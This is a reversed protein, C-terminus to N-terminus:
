GKRKKIVIAGVAGGVVAVAAVAVIVWVTGNPEQEQSGAPETPAPTPKTPTETAPPEKLIAGCTCIGLDSWQHATPEGQNEGCGCTKWHRTDDYGYKTMSHTVNGVYGCDKCGSGCSDIFTHNTGSMRRKCVGCLVYHMNNNYEYERVEGPACTHDKYGCVACVEGAMTHPAKEVEDSCDTCKHWHHTTDSYWRTGLTHVHTDPPNTPEVPPDTPEPNTTKKAGCVTCTDNSWTHGSIDTKHGCSCQHWHSDANSHWTTGYSHVHEEPKKAGCVTCTNNSWTHSEPNGVQVSCDACYQWHYDKNNSQWKLNHKAERYAGCVNCATDCNNDYSHVHEEPKKAGCVTCTNNNWTHTGWNGNDVGCDCAQWHQNENYYKWQFNHTVERWQGCVNCFADCNNDYTHSGGSAKSVGCISCYTVCTGTNWIHNEREGSIKGCNACGMWHSTDNTQYKWTHLGEQSYNCISCTLICTGEFTHGEVNEKYSCGKCQQWHHQWDTRMEMVHPVSSDHYGVWTPDDSHEAAIDEWTPNFGPYYIARVGNFVCMESGSSTNMQPADGEFIVKLANVFWFAGGGIKKVSAPIKIETLASCREFASVGIETVKNPIVINSLSFCRLFMIDSINTLTDPLTISELAACDLFTWKGVSILGSPLTIYKLSNCEQFVDEGFTKISDSLNVTELYYNLYFMWTELKETKANWTVSKLNSWAFCTEGVETVSEPIVISVGAEPDFASNFAGNEIKTVTNPITISTLSYCTGFALEGISKVGRPINVSKLSICNNFLRGSIETINSSLTVKELSWDHEFAEAGISTVSNPITIEKLAGCYGFAGIGITKVSNPISVSTLQPCNWFAYNGIATIGNGIVVKKIYGNLGGWLNESFSTPVKQSDRIAGTGTITLTGDATLTWTANDGCSGSGTATAPAGYNIPSVPHNLRFEKTAYGPWTTHGFDAMGKLFWKYNGDGYHAVDSDFTADLCYYLDGLKVINWGHGIEGFEAGAVLRNDIGAELLLRYMATSFGECTAEGNVLAGYATWIDNYAQTGQQLKGELYAASYKVNKCVYDYIAFVKEYDSKGNLNLSSLIEKVKNTLVKERAASQYYTHGEHIPFTIWHTTGDFSDEMEIADCYGFQSGCWVLTDGETGVGTHKFAENRLIEFLQGPNLFEREDKLYFKLTMADTRRAELYERLEAGAEELSLYGNKAASVNDALLPVAVLAALVLLVSLIRLFKKM